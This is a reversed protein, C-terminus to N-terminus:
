LSGLLCKVPREIHKTMDSDISKKENREEADVQESIIQNVPLLVRNKRENM